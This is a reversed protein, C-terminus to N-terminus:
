EEMSRKKDGGKHQIGGPGRWTVEASVRVGEKEEEQKGRRGGGEGVFGGGGM